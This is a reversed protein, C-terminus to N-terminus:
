PAVVFAAQGDAALKAKAADAAARDAFDGVRVRYVTGKGPVEAAVVSVAHGKKALKKATEQAADMTPLSAVQLTLRSVAKAPLPAASPSSAGLVKALAAKVADKDHKAAAPEGEDDDAAAEAEAKASASASASTSAPARAAPATAVSAAATTTAAAPTPKASAKAAEEAAKVQAAAEVVAADPEDGDVAGPSEAAAPKAAPVAAATPKSPGWAPKLASSPISPAGDTSPAPKQLEDHFSLKTAGQVQLLEDTRRKAAAFVDEDRRQPAGHAPTLGGGVVAGAGFAGGIGIALVLAKPMSSGTRGPAGRGPARSRSLTTKPMADSTM